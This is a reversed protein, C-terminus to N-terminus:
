KQTYILIDVTKMLYFFSYILINSELIFPSNELKLYEKFDSKFFSHININQNGLQHM